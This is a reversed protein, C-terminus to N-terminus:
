ATARARNILDIAANYEPIDTAAIGGAEDIWFRWADMALDLAAVLESQLCEHAAQRAAAETATM